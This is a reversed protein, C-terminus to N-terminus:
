WSPASPARLFGHIFQFSRGEFWSSFRPKTKGKMESKGERAKPAKTTFDDQVPM